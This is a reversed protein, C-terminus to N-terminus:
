PIFSDSLGQVASGRSICWLVYLCWDVGVFCLLARDWSKARVMEPGQVQAVAWMNFPIDRKKKSCKNSVWLAPIGPSRSCGAIDAALRKLGNSRNCGKKSARRVYLVSKFFFFLSVMLKKCDSAYM